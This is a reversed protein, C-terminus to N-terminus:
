AFHRIAHPLSLLEKPCQLIHSQLSCTLSSIRIDYFFWGKCEKEKGDLLEQMTYQVGKYTIISSEHFCVNDDNDKDKIDDTCGDPESCITCDCGSFLVTILLGRFSVPFSGDACEVGDVGIEDQICCNPTCSACYVSCSGQTVYLSNLYNDSTGCYADLAADFTPKNDVTLDPCTYGPLEDALSFSLSATLTLAISLKNM